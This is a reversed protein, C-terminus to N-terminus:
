QNITRSDGHNIEKNTKHTRAVKSIIPALDKHTKILRNWECITYLTGNRTKIM